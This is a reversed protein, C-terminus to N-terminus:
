IIGRNQRDSISPKIESWQYDNGEQNEGLFFAKMNRKRYPIGGNMTPNMGRGITTSMGGDVTTTMGGDM